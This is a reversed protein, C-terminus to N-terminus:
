GIQAMEEDRVLLAVFGTGTFLIHSSAYENSILLGAVFVGPEGAAFEPVEAIGIHDLGSGRFLDVWRGDESKSALATKEAIDHLRHREGPECYMGLLVAPGWSEAEQSLCPDAKVVLAFAMRGHTLVSLSKARSGADILWGVLVAVLFATVGGGVAVAWSIMSLFATTLLGLLLLVGLCGGVLSFTPGDGARRLYKDVERPFESYQAYLSEFSQM